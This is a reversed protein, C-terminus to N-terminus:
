HAQPGAHAILAERVFAAGEPGGYNAAFREDAVYMDGLGVIQERSPTVGGWAAAVWDIHRRALEGVQTSGPELGARHAEQWLEALAQSEALFARQGHEGLGRWWRDGRRYAESGWRQEVEERYISNDFGELMEEVMLVEGERLAAISREVSGILTDLQQRQRHLQVLHWRLADIDSGDGDLASEIAALGMGLRRLLLIRQLRTLASEDYYRVGSVGVRSPALLGIADYHRLTRSTTGTLRVVEAISAEM